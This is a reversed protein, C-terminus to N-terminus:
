GTVRLKIQSDNSMFRPDSRIAVQKVIWLGILTGVPVQLLFMAFLKSFNLIFFHDGFILTLFM